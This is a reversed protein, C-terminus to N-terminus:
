GHTYTMMMMMLILSYVQEYIYVEFRELSQAQLKLQAALDIITIIMTMGYISISRLAHSLCAFAFSTSCIGDIHDHALLLSHLLPRGGSLHFKLGTLGKSTRDAGRLHKLTQIIAPINLKVVRDTAGALLPTPVSSSSSSSASSVSSISPTVGPITPSHSKTSSLTPIATTENITTSIHRKSDHSGDDMDNNNNTLLAHQYCTVCLDFGCEDCRYAMDSAQHCKDGICLCISVLANPLSM